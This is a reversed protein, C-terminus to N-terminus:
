NRMRQRIHRSLELRAYKTSDLVRTIASLQQSNLKIKHDSPTSPEQEIEALQIVLVQALATGAQGGRTIGQVLADLENSGVYIGVKNLEEALRQALQDANDSKSPVYKETKSRLSDGKSKQASAAFSLALTTIIIIPFGKSVM